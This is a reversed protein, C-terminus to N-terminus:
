DDSVKVKGPNEQLCLAAKRSSVSLPEQYVVLAQGEQTFCSPPMIFPRGGAMRNTRKM